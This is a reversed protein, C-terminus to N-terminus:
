TPCPKIISSISNIKVTGKLDKRFVKTNEKTTLNTEQMNAFNIECRGEKFLFDVSKKKKIHAKEIKSNTSLDYTVQSGDTDEWCWQVGESMIEANEREKEELKIESLILRIKTIVSSVDEIHGYVTIRNVRKQVNM